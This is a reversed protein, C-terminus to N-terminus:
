YGVPTLPEWTALKRRAYRRENAVAEAEYTSGFYARKSAAKDEPAYAGRYWAWALPDPSMLSLGYAAYFDNTRLDFDRECQLAHTLEHWITRSPNYQGRAECSRPGILVIHYRDQLHYGKYVGSYRWIRRDQRIRVPEEIGLTECARIVADHDITISLEPPADLYSV